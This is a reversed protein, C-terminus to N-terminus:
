TGRYSGSILRLIMLFLQVVDIYLNLAAFVYEEPSVSYKHNGGILLQTDYVLYLSFLLCGIAAYITNGINSPFLLLVLGFLFLVLVAVFLGTGCTTFDYKTQFAYVTLAFCVIACIGVAMLVQFRCLFLDFLYDMHRKKCTRPYM